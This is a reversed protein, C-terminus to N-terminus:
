ILYSSCLKILKEDEGLAGAVQLGIPLGSNIKDAPISLTPVGIFTWPLNMLPSGTSELGKPATDIASPSIWVDINLSNTLDMFKKKTENQLKFSSILTEQTISKGQEILSKSHESFKDGFEKFREKHVSAFESAVIGRHANNINEINEFIDIEKILFGQAKYFEVKNKFWLLVEASAQKLFDGTAIGIIPKENEISQTKKWDDVLISAVLDIGDIDQTFFGVHDATPSFPIVGATSIRGSTPKFGFVGCYSAPRSISGITQTGLALPTSGAAVAAASGSSSGGPTHNTNHPNKTPGPQFYAFETTVTKGLILAGAKKLKTVVESETGEFASSPLKSGSHTEFNDTIFIDKVGIPIGFLPPRNDAVAYKVLLEKASSLLRARRNNEPLLSNINPEVKDIRDCLENIFKELDLEGTRLKKATEFLHLNHTYNTM